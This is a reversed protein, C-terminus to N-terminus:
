RVPFRRRTPPAREPLLLFDATPYQVSIPISRFFFVVAAILVLTVAIIKTDRKV